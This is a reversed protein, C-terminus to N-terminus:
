RSKLALDFAVVQQESRVEAVNTNSRRAPSFTDSGRNAKRNELRALCPVERMFM